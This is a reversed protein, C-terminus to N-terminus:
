NEVMPVFMFSGLNECDFEAGIKRCKILNQRSSIGVPGLIIGNDKIQEKFANPIEIAAATFIIRDYKAEKEYGKSGDAHIIKVNNIKVRKLNKKAEKFLDEIYEMTYVKGPKVIEELLAANYGFGTGIELVKMGKKLELEELMYAVTYPQSITQNKILPLATDEYSAEKYSKLVFYDRRIKMMANLVSEDKIGRSKLDDVMNKRARFYNDM